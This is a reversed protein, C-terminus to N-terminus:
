QKEGVYKPSEGKAWPDYEQAFRVRDSIPPHTWFWFVALRNPYPYDLDLEGLVQFSHAATEKPYPILNHTVELGYVDAQHEMYRSVTNAVPQGLFFIIGGLLLFMPVAAWDQLARICWREGLRKWLWGSLHFLIYLAILVGFCTAVLGYIIHHLVYHGMEHGVVCLTEPLTTKQITTDWIVVRKSAGFGTVYANLTTVKESAKMEYLHDPPISVGARQELKEIAEVLAPNRNELPEFKNFLPDFFVPAIFFFFVIVPVIALWFYFWWRRASWRICSQLLWLAPIYIGINIAQGKGYDAFWSGWKQISLGYQLAVHHGYISLPLSTLGLTILLLPVFVLAQVIRYCSVAQAWDRYRAALGWRLVLLLVLWSYLPGLVEFRLGLKYLAESQRLKDPPLTYEITPKAAM